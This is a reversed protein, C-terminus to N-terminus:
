EDEENLEETDLPVLDCPACVVHRDNVDGYGNEFKRITDGAEAKSIAAEPTDAEVVYGCPVHRVEVVDILYQPM